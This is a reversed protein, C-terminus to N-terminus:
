PLWPEEFGSNAGIWKASRKSPSFNQQRAELLAIVNCVVFSDDFMFPICSSRSTRGKFLFKEYELFTRSQRRLLDRLTNSISCIGDFRLYLIRPTKKVATDIGWYQFFLFKNKIPNQFSQFGVLFYLVKARQMTKLM